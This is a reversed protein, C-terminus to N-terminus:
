LHEGAKVKEIVDSLKMTEWHIDREVRFGFKDIKELSELSVTGLEAFNENILNAFGFFIKRERDYEYVYWRWQLALHFYKVPVDIQESTLEGTEGFEPLKELVEKTLLEM